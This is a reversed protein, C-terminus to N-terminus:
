GGAAKAPYGMALLAAILRDRHDGQLEFGDERLTGGASCEHRFRKLLRPLESASADLGAVVTTWKGRRKERRVRAPQDRPLIVQGAAGRPCRCDALPKGCSSCTVPRQLPTGDFLGPM